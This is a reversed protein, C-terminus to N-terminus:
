LRLAFEVRGQYEHSNPLAPTIANVFQHWVQHSEDVRGPVDYWQSLKVLGEGANTSCAVFAPALLGPYSALILTCWLSWLITHLWAIKLILTHIMSVLCDLSSFQGKETYPISYYVLKKPPLIFYQNQVLAKGELLSITNLESLFTWQIWSYLRVVEAFVYTNREREDRM